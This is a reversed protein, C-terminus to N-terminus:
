SEIIRTVERVIRNITLDSLNVKEKFDEMSINRDQKIIYYRILGSAVSQPRARSLIESKDKVKDFLNVVAQVDNENADFQSLIEKIINVPTIYTSKQIVSNDTNLNVIKLGKLGEKKTISFLKTLCDCSQPMDIQKYAYFICAFIIAKRTSGRYIRDKVVHQYLNNAIKVINDPLNLSSIDKYINKDENKRIQCRTPDNINRNDYHGYFRWEKDFHLDSSIELGCNECCNNKPNIQTHSCITNESKINNSKNLQDFLCFEGEM